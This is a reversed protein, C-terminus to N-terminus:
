LLLVVFIAALTIWLASTFVGYAIGWAINKEKKSDYPTDLPVSCFARGEARNWEDVGEAYFLATIPLLLFAIINNKTLSHLKRSLWGAGEEPAHLTWDNPDAFVTVPEGNRLKEATMLTYPTEDRVLRVFKYGTDDSEPWAMTEIKQENLHTNFTVEVLSGCKEWDAIEVEVLGDLTTRRTTEALQEHPELSEKLETM